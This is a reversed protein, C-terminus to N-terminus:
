LGAYPSSNSFILSFDFILHFTYKHESLVIRSLVWNDILTQQSTELMM